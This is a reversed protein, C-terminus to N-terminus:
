IILFCNSKKTPLLLNKNSFNQTKFSKINFKFISNFISMIAKLKSHRPKVTKYYNAKIWRKLESSSVDGSSYKAKYSKLLKGSKM